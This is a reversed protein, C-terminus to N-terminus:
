DPWSWTKYLFYSSGRKFFLHKFDLWSRAQKPLPQPLDETPLIKFGVIDGTKAGHTRMNEVIGSMVLTCGLSLAEDESAAVGNHDVVDSVPIWGKGQVFVFVKFAM